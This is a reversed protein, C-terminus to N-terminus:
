SPLSEVEPELGLLENPSDETQPAQGWGPINEGMKVWLETLMEIPMLRVRRRRQDFKMGPDIYPDGGDDVPEEPNIPINTEGFLLALEWVAMEVNTGKRELWDEYFDTRAIEDEATNPRFSWYWQPEKEFNRKVNSVIAYKGFLNSVLEYETDKRM